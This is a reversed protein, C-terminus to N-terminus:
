RVPFRIVTMAGYGEPWRGDLEVEGVFEGEGMERRFDRGLEGKQDIYLRVLYRGPPLTPRRRIEGARESGRPATLSLTHQWLKGKGFVPRDSSAWRDKSWGGGERRYVDAQLLMKDYRDPVGEVKLWIESSASVEGSPKPLQDASTYKGAVVAAYDDIFRRFRKYARDGVVMKQGGGHEVQMTPKALLLSEEPAEPDILGEDLMHRMTAEPDGLRIWSVRRGHKAVQERNRDPSHCATCRGAEAWVNDVFSALVRDTRAHRIVAEPVVPGLREDGPKTALLGPEKVAVELWARFADYEQKRVKETVLGPKEPKRAIFELIKSDQPKRVDVLGAGVLSAFTKGQDAHIYEKLDVGSLHCETCSSPSKARFIPLIRREFIALASQGEEGAAAPPGDPSQRPADVGARAAGDLTAIMLASSAALLSCLVLAPRPGRM